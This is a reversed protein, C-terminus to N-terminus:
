PASRENSVFGIKVGWHAPEASAYYRRLPTINISSALEDREEDGGPGLNM